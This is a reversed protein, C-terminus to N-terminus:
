LQHVKQPQEQRTIPMSTQKATESDKAASICLIGPPSGQSLDWISGSHCCDNLLLVRSNGPKGSDSLLKALVDDTVFADDFVLAEDKQDAEDGNTDNVSAGHGTYYVLLQQQTYKLFHAVAQKFEESKPNHIFYVTFGISKMYQSVTIADNMPGVGLSYDARTYTNCAIFVARTLNTPLKSMIPLLDTGLDNMAETNQEVTGSNHQAVWEDITFDLGLEKLVM